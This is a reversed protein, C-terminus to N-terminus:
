WKHGPQREASAFTEGWDGYERNAATSSPGPRESTAWAAEDTHGEALDLSPMSVTTSGISSCSTVPACFM